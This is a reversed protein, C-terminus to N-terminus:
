PGSNGTIRAYDAPTDIDDLAEPMSVTVIEAAHARVVSRAGEDGDLGALEAYYRTPFLAPPGRQLGYDAIVIKGPAAQAADVLRQLQARGVRPQDALCLLAAAPASTGALLQRFGCAISHGMGRAWDPNRLLELPLGALEAEVAAAESGTVVIVRGAVAMAAEAARRVLTIGAIRELQKVRGYRRAAGAALLVAAPRAANM